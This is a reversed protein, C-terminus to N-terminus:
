EKVSVLSKDIITLEDKTMRFTTFTGGDAKHARLMRSVQLGLETLKIRAEMHGVFEASKKVRYIAIILGTAVMDELCSWDDHKETEGDNLITPYNSGDVIAGMPLINTFGRHLRPNCRMQLNDVIGKNDVVRCELYALTSWHDKGWRDIEIYDDGETEYKTWTSM